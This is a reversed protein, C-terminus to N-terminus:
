NGGELITPEPFLKSPKAKNAEYSQTLISHKSAELIAVVDLQHVGGLVANSIAKGISQAAEQKTM